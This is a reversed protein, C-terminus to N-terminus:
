IADIIAQKLVVLYSTDPDHTATVLHLDHNRAKEVLPTISELDADLQKKYALQFQKPSLDGAHFGKRLETSPSAGKYWEIHKMDTKRVGRPWLRDTLVYDGKISPDHLVEKLQVLTITPM